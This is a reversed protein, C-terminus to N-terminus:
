WRVSKTLIESTHNGQIGPDTNKVRDWFPGEGSRLLCWQNKPETAWANSEHKRRRKVLDEKKEPQDVFHMFRAACNNKENEIHFELENM